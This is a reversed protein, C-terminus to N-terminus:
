YRDDKEPPNQEIWGYIFICNKEADVEVTIKNEGTTNMGDLMPILIEFHYTPLNGAEYDMSDTLACKQIRPKSPLKM